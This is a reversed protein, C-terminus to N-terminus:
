DAEAEARSMVKPMELPKRCERDYLQRTQRWVDQTQTSVIKDWWAQCQKDEEPSLTNPDDGPPLYNAGAVEIGCGGGLALISIKCVLTARPNGPMPMRVEKTTAEMARTLLETLLDQNPKWDKDFRTPEYALYNRRELLKDAKDLGPTQYSFQRQDGFRKDLDEMLGDPLRVRGDETYLSIAGPKMPEPKNRPTMATSPARASPTSAVAPEPSSPRDEQPQEPEPRILIDEHNTPPPLDIFDIQIAEDERREERLSEGLPLYAFALVHLGILTGLLPARWRRPLDERPETDLSLPQWQDGNRFELQWDPEALM